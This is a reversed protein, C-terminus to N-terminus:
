KLINQLKKQQELKIGNHQSPISVIEVKKYKNLSAKHVLIYRNQSMISQSSLLIYQAAALHFMRYIDTLDMQEVTDSLESTENNPKKKTKQKNTQKNTKPRSSKDIQLLLINFDGV